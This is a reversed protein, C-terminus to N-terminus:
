FNARVGIRAIYDTDIETRANNLPLQLSAEAIWRQTIWQVGPALLFQTSNSGDDVGNIRNSDQKIVNLEIVGHLFHKTNITLEKPSLRYQFSADLRASNGLNIGGSAGNKQYSLQGDISWQTTGYTTIVGAFFDYTDSGLNLASDADHKGTPLEVGGFPAIRFTRGKANSRFATYRASVRVDGLGSETERDQLSELEAYVLPLETFLALDASAGYVLTNVLSQSNIEVGAGSVKASILQERVLIQDKGIPLATNFTIPAAIVNSGINMSLATLLVGLLTHNKVRIQSNTLEFHHM